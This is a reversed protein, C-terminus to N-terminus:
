ASIESRAFALFVEDEDEFIEEGLVELARSLLEHARKRAEDDSDREAIGYLCQGIRLLLFPQYHGHIGGFISQAEEFSVLAEDFDEAFWHVDGIAAILEHTIEYEEQHAPIWALAREFAELAKEDEDNDLLTNGKEMLELVNEYVPKQLKKPTIM